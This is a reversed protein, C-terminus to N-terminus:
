MIACKGKSKGESGGTSSVRQHGTAPQQPPAAPPQSHRRRQRQQQPQQQQQQQQESAASRDEEEQLRRALEADSLLEASTGFEAEKYEQWQMDQAQQRSSEEQLSLAVMYDHDVQEPGSAPPREPSLPEFNGNVFQGAGDTSSLTEWVVRPERLFGQDTVLLYLQDQYRYITSFHNNRFFVALEGDRMTERLQSLGHATLQSATTDLFNEALLVEHLLEPDDSDKNTIIKDALQNYGCQAVVRHVDPERPDVLWGHYLRVHLLDFICCEPTYEFEQVGSFKVNVDLGTQLKPLIAVADQMNQQFDPQQAEAPASDLMTDGIYDMLQGITIVELASPLQVKGKLLMVNILALLPCPGNVNQTIIPSRAGHFQVWKIHHATDSVHREAGAASAPEEPLAVREAGAACAAPEEPLAVRAPEASGVPEEESLAVRAPEASGAPEEPLAVLTPEVADAPVEPLTATSKTVDPSAVSTSPSSDRGPPQEHGSAEYSPPSSAAARIMLADESGAVSHSPSPDGHGMTTSEEVVNPLTSHSQCDQGPNQHEIFENRIDDGKDNGSLGKGENNSSSSAMSKIKM